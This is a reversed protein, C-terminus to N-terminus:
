VVKGAGQRRMPQRVECELGYEEHEFRAKGHREQGLERALVYVNRGTTKSQM